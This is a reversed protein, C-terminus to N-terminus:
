NRNFIEYKLGGNQLYWYREKEIREWYEEEVEDGLIDYLLGLETALDRAFEPNNKKTRGDELEALKCYLMQLLENKTKM